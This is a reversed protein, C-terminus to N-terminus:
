RRRLIAVLRWADPHDFGISLDVDGLTQDVDFLESQEVLAQLEARSYDRQRAVDEVVLPEGVTPQYVLHLKYQRTRTQLDPEGVEQWRADLVGSEDSTTWESLAPPAGLEPPRAMELVYIGGPLLARAVSRLHAIFDEDRCLYSSSRLMCAALEIAAPPEFAVMDAVMYSLGIGQQRAKETAFRAMAASRDLAHSEVGLRGVEIAHWAPGAALDFFTRPARGWRTRFVEVLFRAEAAFDRYSFALHYLAAADYVVRHDHGEEAPARAPRRTLTDQSM